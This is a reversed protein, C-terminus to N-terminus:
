RELDRNRIFSKLAKKQDASMLDELAPRAAKPVSKWLKYLKAKATGIAALTVELGEIAKSPETRSEIAKPPEIHSEIEIRSEIAKPPEIRSEIAKPPKTAKYSKRYPAIVQAQSPRELSPSVLKLKAILDDWQRRKFFDESANFWNVRHFSSRYREFFKKIDDKASKYLELKKRHKEFFSEKQSKFIFLPRTDSAKLYAQQVGSYKKAITASKIAKSIDKMIIAAESKVKEYDSVAKKIARNLTCMYSVKGRREIERAAYGEHVQAIKDFGQAAISWYELPDKGLKKLEVNCLDLWSKKLTKLSDKQDIWNVAVNVRKWQKRNRSDLKQLGTKPDILPVRQGNEDLVYEKKYKTQQWKGGELQRAAILIHCHPNNNDKDTHIAYTCAYHAKTITSKIFTEVLEKNKEFSLERPLALIIKKSPCANSNKEFNEISNFLREPEKLESDEPTDEPLLTAFHEVREKRGYSFIEGSDSRIKEGTIYALAKLSNSKLSRRVTSINCYCIAMTSVDGQTCTPTLPTDGQLTSPCLGRAIYKSSRRNDM